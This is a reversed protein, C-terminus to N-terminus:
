PLLAAEISDYHWRWDVNPNADEIVGCIKCYSADDVVDEEHDSGVRDAAPDGTM